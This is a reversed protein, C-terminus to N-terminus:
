RTLRRASAFGAFLEAGLVAPSLRSRPRLWDNIVTGDSTAHRAAERLNVKARTVGASARHVYTITGDDGVAEVVGVHTLGDNFRGDRNRDYTERFFILDGPEPPGEVLADRRQATRFMASVGNDGPEAGELLDLEVDAWAARVLGTCDDPLKPFRAKLSKLGVLSAARSAVVFGIFDGGSTREPFPVWEEASSTVPAEGRLSTTVCSAFLLTTLLWGTARAAM